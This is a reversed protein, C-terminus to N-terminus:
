MKIWLCSASLVNPIAHTKQLKLDWGGTVGRGLLAVGRLGEWVTGAVSSWIYECMPADPAMRM